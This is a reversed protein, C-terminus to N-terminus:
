GRLMLVCHMGRINWYLINSVISVVISHGQRLNIKFINNKCQQQNQRCTSCMGLNLLMICCTIHVYCVSVLLYNCLVSGVSCLPSLGRVFRAAYLISICIYVMFRFMSSITWFIHCYCNFFQSTIFPVCLKATWTNELNM